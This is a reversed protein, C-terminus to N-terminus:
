NRWGLTDHPFIIIVGDIGLGAVVLHDGLPLLVSGDRRQDDM